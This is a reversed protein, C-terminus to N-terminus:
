GDEFHDLSCSFEKSLSNELDPDYEFLEEKLLVENESANASNERDDHESESKRSQLYEVFGEEFDTSNIVGDGDRDLVLFADNAQKEDGLFEELDKKTLKGSKSKDLQSFLWKVSPRRELKNATAM